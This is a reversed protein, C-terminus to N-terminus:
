SKTFRQRLKWKEFNKWCLLNTISFLVYFGLSHWYDSLTLPDNQTFSSVSRYKPSYYVKVQDDVGLDKEGHWACAGDYSEGEVSYSYYVVGHWGEPVKTVQAMVPAGFQNILSREWLPSCQYGVAIMGFVTLVLFIHSDKM